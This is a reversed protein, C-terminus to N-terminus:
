LLIRLYIVGKYAIQLEKTDFRKSNKAIFNTFRPSTQFLNLVSEKNCRIQLTEGDVFWPYCDITEPIGLQTPLLSGFKAPSEPIKM